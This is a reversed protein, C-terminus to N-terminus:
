SNMNSMKRKSNLKTTIKKEYILNSKKILENNKDDNISNFLDSTHIREDNSYDHNYKVYDKNSNEEFNENINKNQNKPNVKLNNNTAKINGKKQNKINKMKNEYNKNNNNQNYNFNYYNTNNNVNFNNNIQTQSKKTNRNKKNNINGKNKTKNNSNMAFNYTKAMNIPNKYNNIPQYKKSTINIKANNNGEYNPPQENIIKFNYGKQIVLNNQNIMNSIWLKDTSFSYHGKVKNLNNHNIIDFNKKIGDIYKIYSTDNYNNDNVFYKDFSGYYAVSNSNSINESNLKKIENIKRNKITGIKNPSINNSMSGKASYNRKMIQLNIIKNKNKESSNPINKYKTNYDNIYNNIQVIKNEKPKILDPNSNIKNIIIKNYKKKMNKEPFPQKKKPFNTYNFFSSQKYNNNVIENNTKNNYDNLLFNSNSIKNIYSINKSNINNENRKKRFANNLGKEKRISIPIKFFNNKEFKSLINYQKEGNNREVVGGNLNLNGYTKHKRLINKFEKSTSEQFNQVQNQIQSIKQGILDCRFQLKMMDLDQESSKSKYPNERKQLYSLPINLNNEFDYYNINKNENQIENNFIQNNSYINRLPFENNNNKSKDIYSSHYRGHYSPVLNLNSYSYNSIQAM